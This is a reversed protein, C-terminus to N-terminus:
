ALNRSNSGEGGAYHSHTSDYSGEPQLHSRLPRYPMELDLETVDMDPVSVGQGGAAPHHGGAPNYASSTSDRSHQGQMASLPNLRIYSSGASSCCGLSLDASERSEQSLSGRNSHTIPPPKLSRTTAGTGNNTGGGEDEILPKPSTAAAAPPQQQQKDDADGSAPTSTNM